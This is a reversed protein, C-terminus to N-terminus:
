GMQREDIEQIQEPLIYELRKPSWEVQWNGTKGNRVKLLQVDWRSFGVGPVDGLVSTISSKKWRSVCAVANETKPRFIYLGRLM